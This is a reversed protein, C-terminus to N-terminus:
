VKCPVLKVGALDIYKNMMRTGRPRICCSDGEDGEPAHPCRAPTQLYKLDVVAIDVFIQLAQGQLTFTAQDPTPAVSLADAVAKELTQSRATACAPDEAATRQFCHEQLQPFGKRKTLPRAVLLPETLELSPLRRAYPAGASFRWCGSGHPHLRCQGRQPFPHLDVVLAGGNAPSTWVCCFNKKKEPHQFFDGLQLGRRAPRLPQILADNCVSDLTVMALPAAAANYSSIKDALTSPLSVVQPLMYPQLAPHLKRLADRAPLSLTKDLACDHRLVDSVRAYKIGCACRWGGGDCREVKQVLQGLLDAQIEHTEHSSLHSRKKRHFNGDDLSLQYRWDPAHAFCDRSPLCRCPLGDYDCVWM